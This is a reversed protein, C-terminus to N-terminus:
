RSAFGYRQDAAKEYIELRQATFAHVDLPEPLHHAQEVSWVSMGRKVPDHKQRRPLDDLLHVLENAAPGGLLLIRAVRRNVEGELDNQVRLRLYDQYFYRGVRDLVSPGRPGRGAQAPLDPKITGPTSGGESVMLAPAMPFVPATAAVTSRARIYIILAVAVGVLLLNAFLSLALPWGVLPATAVLIAVAAATFVVIGTVVSRLLYPFGHGAM